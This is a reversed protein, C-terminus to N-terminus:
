YPLTASEAWTAARWFRVGDKAISVLTNGDPTFGVTGIFGTTHGRFTALLEHSACDWVSVTGQASGAVVRRNDPSISVSWYADAGSQLTALLQHNRVNWLRVTGDTSASALLTGDKSFRIAGIRLKHARIQVPPTRATLDCFVLAVGNPCVAITRNDSTFEVAFWESPSNLEFLNTRAALNRVVLRGDDLQAAAFRGDPSVSLVRAHAGLNPIEILKREGTNDWVVSRGAADATLLAYSETSLRTFHLEQAAIGVSHSKPPHELDWMTWRQHADHTLMRCGDDSVPGHTADHPFELANAVPIGVHVEWFKITGDKGGTAIQANDPSFEAVWIASHHARTGPLPAWTSTDWLNLRQDSGATALVRGDPSFAVAGVLARHGILNTVMRRSAVEWVGTTFDFSGAAVLRGDPSFAVPLMIESHGGLAAETRGSLANWLQVTGDPKGLAVWKRDPSFAAQQWCPLPAQSMQHHTAVDWVAFSDMTATLLQRGDASFALAVVSNSLGLPEGREVSQGVSRRGSQRNESQDQTEQEWFRVTHDTGGSVLWQGDPSFSIAQIAGDHHATAIERRQAVDWVKLSGDYSGSALHRGDSSFAFATIGSEHQGLTFLESGQCQRWFYRWEWGRLDEAAGFASRFWGRGQLQRQPRWKELLDKAHGLSDTEIAQAVLHMDAVYATQRVVAAQATLRHGALATVLATGAVSAGTLLMLGSLAPKRRCWRTLKAGSSLPRAITPEDREFRGLDEALGASTSYRRAPDRELCKLCVSDLDVPVSPNLLRPPLPDADLVKLLTTELDNAVFPPRGTLLHYLIAGLAYIDAAPGVKVGGGSLQEPAMYSPSGLVTGARTVEAGADIRKALGFDLIRPQDAGDILINAPKLDRHLIGRAHAHAVAEAVLRVYRAARRGAMPQLGALEALSEGPVFEMSFFPQGNEEGFEHVAVINPHHLSAAAEAEGRFRTLSERWRPSDSPLMLKLAVTRNLSSQRARYVVGM